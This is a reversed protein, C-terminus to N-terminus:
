PDRLRTFENYVKMLENAQLSICICLKFNLHSNIGIEGPKRYRNPGVQLRPYLNDFNLMFTRFYRVSDFCKSINDMRKRIAYIKEDILDLNCKIKSVEKEQLKFYKSPLCSSDKCFSNLSLYAGSTLSVINWAQKRSFRPRRGVKLQRGSNSERKQPRPIM